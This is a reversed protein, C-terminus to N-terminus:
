RAFATSDAWSAGSMSRLCNPSATGDSSSSSLCTTPIAKWFLRTSSCGAKRYVLHLAVAAAGSSEGFLTVNEPDGGFGAINNRVWKLALQQDMLGYNGTLDHIGSLFGLVGLRYNLSVFVVNGAAALRRGDLVPIASSGGLFGGGHLFVMVPLTTLDADSPLSAPTWVNLSLCDESM